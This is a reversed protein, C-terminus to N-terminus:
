HRKKNKFINKRFERMSNFQKILYKNYVKMDPFSEVLRRYLINYREFITKKVETTIKETSDEKVKSSIGKFKAIINFSIGTDTFIIISFLIILLIGSLQNLHILDFLYRIGPNISRLTLTCGIGFAISYILCIRGNINLPM